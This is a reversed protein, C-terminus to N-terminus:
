ARAIPFAMVDELANVGAAVMLLRDVGLAVGASAPLGCQLARLFRKDLPVTPMGAQKRKALDSRFRQRQENADTLEHYGNALEIGNVFLEFREGVPPDGPRIRALSAQTSPFDYVFVPPEGMRPQLARTLLVDLCTDRDAGAATAAELGFGSARSRLDELSCRVPDLSAWRRFAERYSLRISPGSGLVSAVLDEVEDMMAHHDYGPRYWELLTFEPNHLAGEEGDRFAKCVQYIPGYGACLLRKMAFEPSTQLFVRRAKPQAPSHYRAEFSSIHVDTVTASGLLPTDVELVDREDFFARIQRLTRARLRVAAAKASPRWDVEAQRRQAQM